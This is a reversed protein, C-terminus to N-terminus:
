NKYEFCNYDTFWEYRYIKKDIDAIKEELNQKDIKYKNIHFLTTTDHAKKELSNVKTKLTNFKTFHKAYNSM